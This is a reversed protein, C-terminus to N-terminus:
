HLGLVDCEGDCCGADAIEGDSARDSVCRATVSSSYVQHGTALNIGLLQNGMTKGKLIGFLCKFRDPFAAFM